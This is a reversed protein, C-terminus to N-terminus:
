PRGRPHRQGSRAATGGGLRPRLVYGRVGAAALIDLLRYTNDAVRSPFGDWQSRSVCGEFGSVHFYDEVDITLANLMPAGAPVAVTAPHPLLDASM